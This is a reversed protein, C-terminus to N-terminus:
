KRAVDSAHKATAQSQSLHAKRATSVASDYRSKTSVKEVQVAASILSTALACFSSSYFILFM